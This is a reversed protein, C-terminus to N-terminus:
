ENARATGAPETVAATALPVPQTITPESSHDHEVRTFTEMRRRRLIIPKVYFAFLMGAVAICVGLLQIHVGNRNGVGVGTFNMGAYGGAAPPDWTSQFVM